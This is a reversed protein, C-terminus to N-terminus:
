GAARQGHAARALTANLGIGLLVSSLRQVSGQLLYRGPELRLDEADCTRALVDPVALRGFHDWISVEVQSGSAISWLPIAPCDPLVMFDIDLDAREPGRLTALLGRGGFRVSAEAGSGDPRLIWQSSERGFDLIERRVWQGSPLGVALEAHLPRWLQVEPIAGNPPQLQMSSMGKSVLIVPQM